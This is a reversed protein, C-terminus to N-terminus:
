ARLRSWQILWDQLLFDKRVPTPLFKRNRDANSQLLSVSKAAAPDTIVRKVEAASLLSLWSWLLDPDVDKLAAM